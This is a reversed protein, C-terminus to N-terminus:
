KINWIKTVRLKRGTQPGADRTPSPSTALFLMKFPLKDWIQPRNMIQIKESINLGLGSQLMMTKLSINHWITSVQVVQLATMIIKNNCKFFFFLKDWMAWQVVLHEVLDLMSIWKLLWNWCLYLQFTRESIWRSRATPTEQCWGSIWLCGSAPMLKEALLSPSFSASDACQETSEFECRAWKLKNRESIRSNSKINRM